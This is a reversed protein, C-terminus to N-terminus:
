KTPDVDPLEEDKHEEFLLLLADEMTDFQLGCMNCVYEGSTYSYVAYNLLKYLERVTIGQNVIRQVKGPRQFDEVVAIADCDGGNRSMLVMAECDKAVEIIEKCDDCASSALKEATEPTVISRVEGKQPPFRESYEEASTYIYVLKDGSGKDAYRYLYKKCVSFLTNDTRIESVLRKAIAAQIFFPLRLPKIKPHKM